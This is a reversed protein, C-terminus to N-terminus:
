WELLYSTMIENQNQNEHGLKYIINLIKEYLEQVNTHVRQFFTQEFGKGMKLMLNGTPRNEKKHTSNLQLLNKKKLYTPYYGKIRYM